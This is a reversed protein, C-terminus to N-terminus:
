VICLGAGDDAAGGRVAGAPLRKVQARTKTSVMPAEDPYNVPGQASAVGVAGALFAIAILHATKM